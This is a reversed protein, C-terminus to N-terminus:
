TDRCAAVADGRHCGNRPSKQAYRMLTQTPCLFPGSPRTPTIPNSINPAHKGNYQEAAKSFLEKIDQWDEHTCTQGGPRRGHAATSSSNSMKLRLRESIVSLRDEEDPLYSSPPPSPPSSAPFVPKSHSAVPLHNQLVGACDASFRRRKRRRQSVPRSQSQSSTTSSRRASRSDTLAIISPNREEVRERSHQGLKHHCSSSGRSRKLHNGRPITMPVHSPFVALLMLSPDHIDPLSLFFCLALSM